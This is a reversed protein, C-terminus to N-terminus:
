SLRHARPDTLSEALYVLFLTFILLLLCGLQSRAGLRMCVCASLVCRYVHECICVLTCRWLHTWRSSHPKVDEGVNSKHNFSQQTPNQKSLAEPPLGMQPAWGSTKDTLRGLLAIGVAEQREGWTRGSVLACLGVPSLCARM